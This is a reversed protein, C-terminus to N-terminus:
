LRKQMKIININPQNDSPKNRIQLGFFSEEFKQIPYTNLITLVFVQNLVDNNEQQTVRSGYKRRLNGFTGYNNIIHELRQLM